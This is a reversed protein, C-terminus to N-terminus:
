IRYITYFPSWILLGHNQKVKNSKEHSLADNMRMMLWDSLRKSVKDSKDSVGKCDFGNNPINESTPQHTLSKKLKRGM